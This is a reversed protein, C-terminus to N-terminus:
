SHLALALDLLIAGLPHDEGEGVGELHLDALGVRAPDLLDFAAAKLCTTALREPFPSQTDM